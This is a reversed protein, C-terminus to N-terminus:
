CDPLGPSDLKAMQHMQSTTYSPMKKFITKLGCEPFILSKKLKKNRACACMSQLFWDKEKSKPAEGRLRFFLIPEIFKKDFKKFYAKLNEVM